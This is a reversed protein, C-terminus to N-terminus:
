ISNAIGNINLYNLYLSVLLYRIYFLSTFDFVLM